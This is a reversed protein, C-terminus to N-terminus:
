AVVAPKRTLWLVGWWLIALLAIELSRVRQGEFAIAFGPSRPRGAFGVAWGFARRPRLAPAGAQLMLRWRSDYQQSLLILADATTTGPLPSVGLPAAHAAPLHAVAEVTPAFAAQLWEPDAVVSAQPVWKSNEFILLGGAPVLNLDVQRALRRIAPNPIDRPDAVVFRVALPALLSGAHRTRGAFAERLAQRVYEYGPGAAPRGVDLASAGQPSRVAFRVSAPGASVTGDPTGAPPVFADRDVSGLWLVRYSGGAADAVVPYAPPLRDSGGVAWSGRAAQLAQGALGVGLLLALLGTGLQRSGFAVEAMGKAVFGVGLGTMLALSFAALGIYAAPNSLWIPLYGAGALWALYISALAIMGARVAIGALRGSVFVLALAAALPLYIGTWWSGPGPGLNLRVLSAFSPSGGADWFGIGGERALVLTLPFILVAGVAAAGMCLGVGRLRATGKIPVLAYGVVMVAAAVATSPFFSTLVALGAGAGILWRRAPVRSERDFPLSLKSALWPVGAFFVLAPVRGVSVGWLVASSLGYTTASVVAPLREGTVGRVARYCGVAAVAPLGLLLLKQLLAPSGFTVISGIGLLGLAPSAAQAGGLGTHRLGSVLERFFGTSSSPPVGLAGGVLPSAAFLHRYGIIAVVIAITWATAVPHAAAFRLTRSRASDPEEAEEERAPMLSQGAALAWGQLRIWAPAMARRVSRDSVARIAQVRVRRRVTSPLHAINWGWAEIVQAADELRRSVVQVGLRVLGQALYLPLLWLLSLLGYNKLMSALALREREYRIRSEPAGAREKRTTASRHQAVARPTMMVRFGAVRARWCFDLEDAGSSFRDDPPGIKSWAARSVLMACSSVFLVERIRDYQGQDIEGEELPSYPYGFRDTSLGIDRLVTPDDWDLVKPGVVGVGDIREAADVLSSVADPALFTDDHLLLVYDAQAAMDTTLAEAVAAGFGKNRQLSIVRAEGLATQLLTPSEDTSGNDVALVGIRPHNQRSLGLLCRPLWQAGDKVVLVVLVSPPKVPEATRSQAFSRTEVQSM